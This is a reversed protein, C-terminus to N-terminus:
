YEIILQTLQGWKVFSCVVWISFYQTTQSGILSNKNHVKRNHRNIYMYMYERYFNLKFEKPPFLHARRLPASIHLWHPSYRLCKLIVLWFEHPFRCPSQYTGTCRWVFIPYSLTFCKAELGSQLSFIVWLLISIKHPREASLYNWQSLAIFYISLSLCLCM